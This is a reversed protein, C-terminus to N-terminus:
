GQVIRTGNPLTNEGTGSWYYARVVDSVALGDKKSGEHELRAVEASAAIATKFYRPFGEVDGTAVEVYYGVPRKEVNPM